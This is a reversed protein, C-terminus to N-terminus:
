SYLVSLLNARDMKLTDVSIETTKNHKIRLSVRAEAKCELAEVAQEIRQPEPEALLRNVNSLYSVNQLRAALANQSLTKGGWGPGFAGPQFGLPFINLQQQPPSPVMLFKFTLQLELEAFQADDSVEYLKGAI